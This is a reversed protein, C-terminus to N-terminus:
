KLYDLYSGSHGIISNGWDGTFIGGVWYLYQSFLSRETIFYVRKPSIPPHNEINLFPNHSSAIQIPFFVLVSIVFFAIMAILLRKSIFGWWNSKYTYVAEM